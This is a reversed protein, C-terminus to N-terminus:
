EDAKNRRQRLREELEVRLRISRLLEGALEHSHDAEWRMTDGNAKDQEPRKPAKPPKTM